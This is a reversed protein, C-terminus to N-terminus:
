IQAVIDARRGINNRDYYSFYVILISKEFPKISQLFVLNVLEM